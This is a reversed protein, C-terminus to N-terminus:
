IRSISTGTHYCVFLRLLSECGFRISNSHMRLQPRAPTHALSHTSQTSCSLYAIIICVSFVYDNNNNNNRNQQTSFPVPKTSLRVAQFACACARHHFLTRMPMGVIKEIMFFIFIFFLLLLSCRAACMETIRVDVACRNEFSESANRMASPM